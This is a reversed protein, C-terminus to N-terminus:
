TRRLAGAVVKGLVLYVIAALGYNLVLGMTADGPTFVDGFGLVFVKATGYVFSVIGSGQNAGAIVFVIHLVFVTAILGTFLQVVTAITRARDERRARKEEYSLGPRRQESEHGDAGRGPRRRPPPEPEFDYPDSEYDYRDDRFNRDDRDYRDDRFDREDRYDYPEFGREYQATQNVAQEQPPAAHPPAAPPPAM